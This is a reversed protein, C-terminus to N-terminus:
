RINGQDALFKFLNESGFGNPSSTANFTLPQWLPPESRLSTFHKWGLESTTGPIKSCAATRVRVLPEKSVHEGSFSGHRDTHSGQLFNVKVYWHQKFFFDILWDFFRNILGETILSSICRRAHHKWPRQCYEKYDHKSNKVYKVWPGSIHRDYYSLLMNICTFMHRDFHWYRAM